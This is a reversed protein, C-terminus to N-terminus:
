SPLYEIGSDSGISLARAMSRAPRKQQKYILRYHCQHFFEDFCEEMNEGSVHEEERVDSFQPRCSYIKVPATFGGFPSIEPITFLLPEVRLLLSRLFMVM